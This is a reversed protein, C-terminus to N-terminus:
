GPPVGLAGMPPQIEALTELMEPVTVLLYGQRQLRDIILPLAQITGDLNQRPGGGSHFLIIAGPHVQGLVTNLIANRGPAQWDQSDISWLIIRYGQDAVNRVSNPDLAGYPPRFLRTRSGVARSLSDDTRGLDLVIESRGMASYRTHAYSHNGLAHGDNVIRRTIEPLEDVRAGVLFFTARVGKEALIDLVQPTYTTDPGDDFTLAVQRGTQAGRLIVIGPFMSALDSGPVIRHEREPGEALPPAEEDEAQPDQPPFQVWPWPGGPTYAVMGIAMIVWLGVVLLM